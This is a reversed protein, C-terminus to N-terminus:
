GNPHSSLLPAESAHASVVDDEIPSVAHCFCCHASDELWTQQGYSYHKGSARAILSVSHIEIDPLNLPREVRRQRDAGTPRHSIRVFLENGVEVRLADATALGGRPGGVVVAQVELFAFGERLDELAHM